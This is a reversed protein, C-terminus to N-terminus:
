TGAHLLSNTRPVRHSPQSSLLMAFSLPLSSTDVRLVGVVNVKSLGHLHSSFIKPLHVLSGHQTEEPIENAFVFCASSFAVPGAEVLIKLRRIQFLLRSRLEAYTLSSFPMSRLSTSIMRSRHTRHNWVRSLAMDGSLSSGFM